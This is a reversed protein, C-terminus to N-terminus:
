FDKMFPEYYKLDLNMNEKRAKEAIELNNISLAPDNIIKIKKNM